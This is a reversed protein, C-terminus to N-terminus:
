HTETRPATRFDYEVELNAMVRQSKGNVLYPKFAWDKVSDLAAQYAMPHGGVVKASVVRGSENVCVKVTVVGHVSLKEMM